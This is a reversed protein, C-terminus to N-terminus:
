KYEEFNCNKFYRPLFSSNTKIKWKKNACMNLLREYLQLKDIRQVYSIQTIDNTCVKYLNYTLLNGQYYHVM